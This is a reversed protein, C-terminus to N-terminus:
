LNAYFSLSYFRCDQRGTVSIRYRMFRFRGMTIRSDFVEPADSKQGILSLTREARESELTITPTNGNTGACLTMRLSRKKAEPHSFSFYGSQYFATIERGADTIASEDFMALINDSLFGQVNEFSYFFNISFDGFVYWAKRALNYVFVRKKEDNRSHIWLEGNVKDERAVCSSLMHTTLLNSIDDSIKVIEPPNKESSSFVLRHIGKANVVIPTGDCVISADPSTTGFGDLLPYILPIDDAKEPCEIKWTSHSGYALLVDGYQCIAKVPNQNSGVLMVNEDNFYLPHANPYLKRCDTLNSGSVHTSSYIHYPKDGNYLCFTPFHKGTYVIGKKASHIGNSHDGLIVEMGIEVNVSGVSDSLRISNNGSTFAYNTTAEGNVIVKDIAKAYFPLKFVASGSTNTYHVRIHNTLLNFPENLAGGISPDWNKGYLPIYPDVAVFSDTSPDYVQMGYSELLYLDDNFQHFEVNGYKSVLSGIEILEGSFVELRYIKTSCVFFTYSELDITGIWYGRATDPLVRLDRYGERKKLSGDSCIRFNFIDSAKTSKSLPTGGIGEFQDFHEAAYAREPKIKSM